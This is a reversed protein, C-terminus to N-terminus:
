ASVARFDVGLTQHQRSPAKTTKESRASCGKLLPNGRENGIGSLPVLTFSQLGQRNRWCCEVIEFVCIGRQEGGDLLHQARLRFVRHKAPADDLAEEPNVVFAIEVIQGFLDRAEFDAGDGLIDGAWGQNRSRFSIRDGLSCSREVIRQTAWFRQNGKVM